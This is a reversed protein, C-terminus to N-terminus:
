TPVGRGTLSPSGNGPPNQLAMICMPWSPAPSHCCPAGVLGEPERGMPHGVAAEGFCKRCEDTM